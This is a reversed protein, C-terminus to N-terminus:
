EGQESHKLHVILRKNSKVQPSELLPVSLSLSLPIQDTQKTVPPRSPWVIQSSPVTVLLFTAGSRVVTHWFYPIKKTHIQMFFM